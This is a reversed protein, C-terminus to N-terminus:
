CWLVYDEAACQQKTLLTRLGRVQTDAKKAAAPAAAAAAPKPAAPAAAAPKPAAPETAKPSAAQLVLPLSLLLKLMSANTYHRRGWEQERAGAGKM